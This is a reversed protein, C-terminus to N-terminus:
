LKWGARYEHHIFRDAEPCNTARIRAADWELAKGVRHAVNGLLGIETVKAGYEFPSQNPAGGRIARLWEEHHGPSDPIWRAPAPRGAFEAEPFVRLQDYDALLMGRSGVFLSGNGWKPLRGEAFQPPRAGGHYWTMRVPPLDKPGGGGWSPARRAPFDYRVVLHRPACEPHIESGSAEVRVPRDLALAWVGLDIHHCCFDSLTGGGFAWWRRWNFPVYQDSYERFPVPGLWAEWDL